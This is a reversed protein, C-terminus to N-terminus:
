DGKLGSLQVVLRRRRPRNDFDILVLQQWTGLMLRGGAVPVVLSPGFLSSRVHSHGNGDHWTQDHHYTRDKPALREFLEPMDKLLGPEYELTTLAATSGPVFVLVHGSELGHRDVLSAVEGTVDIIHGEGRTPLELQETEIFIGM